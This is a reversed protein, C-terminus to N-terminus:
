EKHKNLDKGIEELSEEIKNYFSYAFCTDFVVKFSMKHESRKHRCANFTNLLDEVLLTRYFVTSYKQRDTLSADFSIEPMTAGTENKDYCKNIISILSPVVVKKYEELTINESDCIQTTRQNDILGVFATLCPIALLAVLTKKIYM